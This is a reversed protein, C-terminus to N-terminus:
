GRGRRIERDPRFSSEVSPGHILTQGLWGFLLFVLPASAAGGIGMVILQWLTGWGLLPTRCMTLLLLTLVPAAISACFGLLAQVFKKDRLVVDRALYAGLGVLYLPLCSVGLPNASLADFWLGGLVAVLGLTVAGTCLGAYVMLCPLLDVQAGLLRRICGFAAELFVVLFTAGIVLM